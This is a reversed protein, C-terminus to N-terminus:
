TRSLVHVFNVFLIGVNTWHLKHGILTVHVLACYRFLFQKTRGNGRGGSGRGGSGCIKM